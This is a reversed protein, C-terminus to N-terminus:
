SVFPNKACGLSGVEALLGKARVAPMEGVLTPAVLVQRSQCEIWDMLTQHVGELDQMVECNTFRLVTLGMAQLYITREKDYAAAEPSNHSEGDVEIVLSLEACYFDVIFRGIPRQKRFNKGLKIICEHWMRRESLTMKKRMARARPVLATNYTPM